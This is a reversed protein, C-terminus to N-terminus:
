SFFFSLLYSRASSGLHTCVPEMRLQDHHENKGQELIYAANSQAVEFGLEALFLYMLFAAEMDGHSYLRHAETFMQIYKGRESVTKLLQISSRLSIFLM